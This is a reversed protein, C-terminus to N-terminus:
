YKRLGANIGMKIKGEEKKPAFDDSGILTSVWDCSELAWKGVGNRRKQYAMRKRMWKM